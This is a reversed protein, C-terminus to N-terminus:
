LISFFDPKIFFFITTKLLVLTFGYWFIVKGRLGRYRAYFGNRSSGYAFGLAKGKAYCNVLIFSFLLM